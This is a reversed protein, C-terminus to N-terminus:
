KAPVPLRRGYIGPTAAAQDDWAIGVFPDKGGIAVSPASRKRGDRTGVAFESDSGDIPNFPFGEGLRTYRARIQGRLADTWAVVYVGAKAATGAIAPSTQDGDKVLDNVVNTQDGAIKAVQASFRQLVVDANGSSRDAWVVAFRGDALAAVDPREQVGAVKENVVSEGGAPTGDPSVLRLKIDGGSEWVIVFGTPLSAVRPRANSTGTSLEQQNGLVNPPSFSRGFIRGSGPGGSEDQWAVFLKGNEGAALAPLTQAGAEGGGNPGNVGVGSPEGPALQADFSRLAIDTGNGATTSEVQFVTWVSAGLVTARPASQAATAPAAPASGNPLFVFGSAAAAPQSIPAFSSDLVRLGVDTKGSSKDTFLAFFRSTAGERWLTATDAKEGVVGAKTNGATSGLSLHSEETKCAATCATGSPPDCQELGEVVGNGCTSPPIARVLKIDLPVNEQNVKATTCGQAIRDNTADTAVAVFVRDAESRTVRLDGCFRVGAACGASALERSAVKPTAETASSGGNAPDCTAGGEGTEYVTLTVKTVTDLLGRPAIFRTDLAIDARDGDSACAALVFALGLGVRPVPRSPLFISGIRAIM